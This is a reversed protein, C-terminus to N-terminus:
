KAKYYNAMNMALSSMTGAASSVGSLWASNGVGKTSTISPTMPNSEFYPVYVSNADARAKAQSAGKKATLRYESRANDLNMDLQNMYRAEDGYYSMKLADFSMGAMKSSAVATGLKDAREKFVNIAEQSSAKEEEQFAEGGATLDEEYATFALQANNDQTEIQSDYVYQKYKNNEATQAKEYEYQATLYNNQSKISAEQAAASQASAYMSTAASVAATVAAAALGTCM